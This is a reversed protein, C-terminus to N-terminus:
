DSLAAVRSVIESVPLLQSAGIFRRAVLCGAEHAERGAHSFSADEVIWPTLGLEFADAATKLVCSETAIGAVIINHWGRQRVLRTGEPTFLSYIPKDIVAVAGPIFPVLEPVIETEPERTLRHWDLISEFPSGPENIFRTLVYPQGMGAWQQILDTIVPVIHASHPTIFGNQVDVVVLVSDSKM